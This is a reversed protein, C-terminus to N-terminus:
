VEGMAGCGLWGTIQYPRFTEGLAWGSMATGGCLQRRPTPMWCRNSKRRYRRMREVRTASSHLGNSRSAISLPRFYRSSRSWRPDATM